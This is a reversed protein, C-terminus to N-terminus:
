GWGQFIRVFQSDIEVVEIVKEKCRKRIDNEVIKDKKEIHTKEVIKMNNKYKYGSPYTSAGNRNGECKM